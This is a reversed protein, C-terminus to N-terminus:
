QACKGISVELIPYNFYSFVYNNQIREASVASNSVRCKLFVLEPYWGISVFFLQGCAYSYM